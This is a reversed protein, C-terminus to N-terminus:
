LYDEPTYLGRSAEIYQERTIEVVDHKIFHKSIASHQGIPMYGTLQGPWQQGTRDSEMDVLFVSGANLRAYKDKFYKIKMFINLLVIGISIFTM